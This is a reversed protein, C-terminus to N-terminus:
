YGQGGCGGCTSPSTGAKARSGKCGECVDTRGFSVQKTAGNIADMFDIELNMLVDQGKVQVNGRKPGGEGGFM